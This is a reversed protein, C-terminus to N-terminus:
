PSRKGSWPPGPRVEGQVVKRLAPHLLNLGIQADLEIPDGTGVVVRVLGVYLQQPAIAGQGTLGHADVPLIDAGPSLSRAASSM